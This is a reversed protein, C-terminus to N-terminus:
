TTESNVQAKEENALSTGKLSERESEFESIKKLHSDITSNLDKITKRAKFRESLNFFYTIIIGTLFCAAFLIVNYIPETEHKMLLIDIKFNHKDFFFEQNQFVVIAIFVFIIVWLVMKIKKM